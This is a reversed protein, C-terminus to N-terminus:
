RSMCSVGVSAGTSFSASRSGLSVRPARRHMRWVVRNLGRRTSAPLEDVVAGNADVVEIRQKGFLQRTRQYYTIVAGDKPNEGVFAAAGNPWGGNAEIRQQVPRLEIFAAATMGHGDANAHVNGPKPAELEDRCAARFAAAIAGGPAGSMRMSDPPSM